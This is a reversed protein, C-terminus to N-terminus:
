LLTRRGGASSVNLDVYTRIGAVRGRSHYQWFTWSAAPTPKALISRRWMPRRPLYAHYIAFFDPTVYLVARRHERSEVVGLYADLERRMEPGSLRRPCTRGVELDVAPPLANRAHPAVALFNHAQARGSRCFIFYHYAGVRIGARRAGRWNRAFQADRSEVGETAKLYAFAVDDRAVASWNISGQFHSVDIGRLPYRHRDPEGHAERSWAGSAAGSAILSGLLVAPLVARVAKRVTELFGLGGSFRIRGSRWPYMLPDLSSAGQRTDM